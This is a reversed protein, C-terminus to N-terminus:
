VGPEGPLPATDFGGTCGDVSGEGDVPLVPDDATGKYQIKDRFKTKCGKLGRPATRGEVIDASQNLFHARQEYDPGPRQQPGLDYVSGGGGGSACAAALLCLVACALNRMGTLM